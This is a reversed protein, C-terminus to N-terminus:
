HLNYTMNPGVKFSITPDLGRRKAKLNGHLLLKKWWVSVGHHAGEGCAWFYGVM